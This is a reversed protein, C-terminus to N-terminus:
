GVQPSEAEFENRVLATLVVAVLGLDFTLVLAFIAGTLAWGWNKRQLACIGGILSLMGAILALLTLGWLIGPVIIM